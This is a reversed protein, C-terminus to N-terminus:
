YQWYDVKGKRFRVYDDGWYYWHVYGGSTTVVSRPQGWTYLVQKRNMGKKVKKADIM